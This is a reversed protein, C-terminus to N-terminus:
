QIVKLNQGKQNLNIKEKKYESESIGTIELFKKYDVYIIENMRM